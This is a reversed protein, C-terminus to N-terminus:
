ALDRLRFPRSSRLENIEYSGRIQAITDGARV